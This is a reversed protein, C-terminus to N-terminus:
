SSTPLLQRFDAAMAHVEDYPEFGLGAYLGRARENAADVFLMATADDRRLAAARFAEATLASGLGAVGATPHVAIAYLELLGSTAHWKLWCFGVIRSGRRAILLDAPDFWSTAIRKLLDARTWGGQEPHGLFAANNTALLGAQEEATGRYTRLTVAPPVTRAPFGRLPRRLQLLQRDVRFGWSVALEHHRPDHVWWTVTPARRQLLCVTVVALLEDEVRGILDPRVVLEMTWEARLTRPPPSVVRAYALLEGDDAGFEVGFSGPAPDWLDMRKRESLAEHGTEEVVRALLRVVRDDLAAPGEVIRAM